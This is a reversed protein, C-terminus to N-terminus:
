KAVNLVNVLGEPKNGTTLLPPFLWFSFLMLRQM